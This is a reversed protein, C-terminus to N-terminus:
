FVVLQDIPINSDLGVRLGSGFGSVREGLFLGCFYKSDIM